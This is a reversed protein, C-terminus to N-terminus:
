LSKISSAASDADGRGLPSDPGSLRDLMPQELLLNLRVLQEEDLLFFGAERLQPRHDLVQHSLGAPWLQPEGVLEQLHQESLALPSPFRCPRCEQRTEFIGRSRHGAVDWM